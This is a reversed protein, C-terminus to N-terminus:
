MHVTCTSQLTWRNSQGLLIKHHIWLEASNLLAHIYLQKSSVKFYIHLMFEAAQCHCRDAMALCFCAQTATLPFFPAPRAGRSFLGLYSPGPWNRYLSLSHSQSSSRLPSLALPAWGRAWAPGGGCQACETVWQRVALSPWYLTLVTPLLICDGVEEENSAATSHQDFM